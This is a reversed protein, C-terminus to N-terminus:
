KSLQELQKTLEENKERELIVLSELEANLAIARNLQERTIALVKILYAPDNSLNSQEKSM